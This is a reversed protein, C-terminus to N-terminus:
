GVGDVLMRMGHKQQVLDFLGMRVQEVDQQLHHIVALEGIVVALRDVEAVRDQDHRGIGAGRVHRSFADAEARHGTFVRLFIRDLLHERRFEAVAEIRNHREGVQWRRDDCPDHVLEDQLQLQLQGVAVDM